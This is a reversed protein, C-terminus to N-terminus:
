TVIMGIMVNAMVTTIILVSEEELGDADQVAIDRRQGDLANDWNCGADAEGTNASTRTSTSSTTAKTQRIDM